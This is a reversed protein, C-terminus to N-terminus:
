AHRPNRTSPRSSERPSAEPLRLRRGKRRKVRAATRLRQGPVRLLEERDLEAVSLRLLVPGAGRLEAVVYDLEAALRTRVVQVDGWGADRPFEIWARCPGDPLDRFVARRRKYYAAVEREGRGAAWRAIPAAEVVVGNEAALGFTAYPLSVWIWRPAM